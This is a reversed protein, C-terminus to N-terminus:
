QLSVEEEALIKEHDANDTYIAKLKGGNTNIDIDKNILFKIVRKKNPTYLALGKATTLNTTKGKNNIYDIKLDGYTSFNGNRYMVVNVFMTTDNEKILRLSDMTVETNTEGVRIIVPISIGFVAKLQVSINNPDQPKPAEGLPKEDEISRLYLHSRYEGPQLQQANRLQFKITQSENPGLYVNRPFYRLYKSAFNQGSDPLIIKEFSGDENMRQEIFSIAYKATDTGTNALSIEATRKGNEFVVRRPTLLLNGQAYILNSLAFLVLFLVGKQFNM